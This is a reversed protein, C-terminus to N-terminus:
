FGIISLQKDAWLVAERYCQRLQKTQEDDNSAEPWDGEEFRISLQLWNGLDGDQDLLALRVPISLPIEDLLDALPTHLMKELVSLLGTTFAQESDSKDHLRALCECMRARVLGLSLFEDPQEISLKKMQLLTVWHRLASIGLLMVVQHISGIECRLAYSACNIYRLLQYSLAADLTILQELEKLEVDPDQLKKQLEEIVRKNNPLQKGRIVDPKHLYYGQLYDFGLARCFELTEESEIKEAVLKVPYRRLEEYIRRLAEHDHALTNVKIIHVQNLFSEGIATLLSYDLAIIFGQKNLRQLGQVIAPTIQVDRPIELVVQKPSVPLHINGELFDGTLNIFACNSGVVRELGIDIFTSLIVHTSAHDAGAFNVQHSENDRYLLEYGFLNLAQDYIAQRGIFIQDM